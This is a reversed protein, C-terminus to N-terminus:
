IKKLPIYLNKLESPSLGKTEKLWILLFLACVVNFAAYLWFTGEFRLPSDIKYSVAFAMIINSGQIAALGFGMGSDVCAEALYIWAVNGITM